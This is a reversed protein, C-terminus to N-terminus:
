IRKSILVQNWHLVLLFGWIPFRITVHDIVDRSRSLDLGHGWYTHQIIYCVTSNRMIQMTVMYAIAVIRSGYLTDGHTLYTCSSCRSQVTELAPQFCM